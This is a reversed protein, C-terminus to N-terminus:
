AHHVCDDLRLSRQAGVYQRLPDGPDMSPQASARTDPFPDLAMQPVEFPRLFRAALEDPFLASDDFQQRVPMGCALIGPTRDRIDRKGLQCANYGSARVQKSRDVRCAFESTEEADFAQCGDGTGPELFGNSSCSVM